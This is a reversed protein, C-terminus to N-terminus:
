TGKGPAERSSSETSLAKLQEEVLKMYEEETLVKVSAKGNTFGKKYSVENGKKAHEVRVHDDGKPASTDKVTAGQKSVLKTVPRELMTGDLSGQKYFWLIAGASVIVLLCFLALYIWFRRWRM